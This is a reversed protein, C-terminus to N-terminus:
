PTVWFGALEKAVIDRHPVPAEKKWYEFMQINERNAAVRPSTLGCESSQMAKKCIGSQKSFSRIIRKRHLDIDKWFDSNQSRKLRGFRVWKCLLVHQRVALSRISM